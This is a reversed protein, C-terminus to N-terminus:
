AAVESAKVQEEHEATLREAERRTIERGHLEDQWCAACYDRGPLCIDACYPSACLDSVGRM